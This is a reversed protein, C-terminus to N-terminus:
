SRLGTYDPGVLDEISEGEHPAPTTDTDEPMPLGGYLGPPGPFAFPFARSGGPWPAELTCFSAGLQSGPSGVTGFGVGPPVVTCASVGPHRVTACCGSRARWAYFTGGSAVKKVPQSFFPPRDGRCWSAGVGGGEGRIPQSEYAPLPGSTAGSRDGFVAGLDLRFRSAITHNSDNIFTQAQNQPGAFPLAPSRLPPFIRSCCSV